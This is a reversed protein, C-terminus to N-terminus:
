RKLEDLANRAADQEAAKKTKGLGTSTIDFLKLEVTFTKDHDPGSEELMDYEPPAAGKEQAYEQLTSKFDATKDASFIGELQNSFLAEVMRFVTAINFSDSMLHPMVAAPM